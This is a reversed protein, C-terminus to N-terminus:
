SFQSISPSAGGSFSVPQAHSWVPISRRMMPQSASAPAHTADGGTAETPDLAGPVGGLQAM